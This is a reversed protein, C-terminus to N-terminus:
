LNDGRGREADNIKTSQTKLKQGTRILMPDRTTRVSMPTDSASCQMASVDAIRVRRALNRTGATWQIAPRKTWRIAAAKREPGRSGSRPMIMVSGDGGDSRTPGWVTYIKCPRRGSCRGDDGGHVVAVAVSHGGRRKRACLEKRVEHNMWLVRPVSGISSGAVVKDLRKCRTWVGM